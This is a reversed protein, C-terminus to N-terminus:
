FKSITNQGKFTGFPKASLTANKSYASKIKAINGNNFNSIWNNSAKLVEEKVLHQDLCGTSFISFLIIM